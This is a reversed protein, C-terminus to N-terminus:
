ATIGRCCACRDSVGIRQVHLLIIGSASNRLGERAVRAIRSSEEEEEEEEDDDHDHDDHDDHDEKRGGRRLQVSGSDPNPQDPTFSESDDPSETGLLTGM